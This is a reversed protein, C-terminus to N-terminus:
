RATSGVATYRPYELALLTDGLLDEIEKAQEVSIHDTWEKTKPVIEGFLQPDPAWRGLDPNREIVAEEEFPEGLFRCVEAFEKRPDTTFAEYRIARLPYRGSRLHRLLAEISQGYQRAFRGPSIRSWPTAQPDVQARRQMSSYVDVPHRHIYLMKCRPFSLLLKRVQVINYPSKELLRKAGRALHAHYFYSRCVLHGLTAYWWYPSERRSSLLNAPLFAVNALRISRTSSLFQGYRAEDELMYEYLRSPQGPRFRFAWPLLTFFSTESLNVERPRFASHKQLVRYLMSTGSRPAGVIFVPDAQKMARSLASLGTM